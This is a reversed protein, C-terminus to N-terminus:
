EQEMKNGYVESRKKIVFFHNKPCERWWNYVVGTESIYCFAEKFLKEIKYLRAEVRENM